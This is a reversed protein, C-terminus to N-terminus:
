LKQLKAIVVFREKESNGFCTSLTLFTDGFAATVETDYFSKRKANNYFNQFEEETDAQYFQYYKFAEKEDISSVFAAMVEYTREEYLTDFKIKTHKQYFDLDRYQDLSGFMSGDRMNHGYIIFNTGPTNIDAKKRVYLCGYKDKEKYFNRYLYYEDDACQMVPYDIETGEVKLWGALDKNEQYLNQFKELINKSKMKNGASNEGKQVNDEKGLLNRLEEQQKEHRASLYCAQVVPLLCIMMVLLLIRRFIKIRNKRQM